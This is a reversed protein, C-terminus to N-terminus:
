NENINREKNVDAKTCSESGLLTAKMKGVWCPLDPVDETNPCEACFDPDSHYGTTNLDGWCPYEEMLKQAARLRSEAVDARSKFIELGKHTQYLAAETMKYKCQLEAVQAELHKNKELM